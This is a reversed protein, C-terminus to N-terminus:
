LCGLKEYAIRESGDEVYIIGCRTFGNKEIVHQMIKNDNHTDIRLHKIRQECFQVAMTLVGHIQGDGAVRHITGYTDDSLWSGNEIVNYTDDEGTRFYFVGHIRSNIDDASKNMQEDKIQQNKQQEKFTEEIVYLNGNIIDNDIVQESPNNNKWQNPNGNEAMFKRAFAYIECIREKDQVSARRITYKNMIVRMETYTSQM